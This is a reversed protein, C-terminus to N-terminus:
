RLVVFAVAGLLAVVIIGIAVPRLSRPTAAPPQPVASPAPSPMPSSSQAVSSVQPTAWRGQTPKTNSSVTDLPRDGKAFNGSNGVAEFPRGITGVKVEKKPTQLGSSSLTRFADRGPKAALGPEAALAADFRALFEEPRGCAARAADWEDVLLRRLRPLRPNGDPGQASERGWLMAVAAARLADVHRRENEAAPQGAADAFMAREDDGERDVRIAESWERVTAPGDPVRTSEALSTLLARARQPAVVKERDVISALTVAQRPSMSEM